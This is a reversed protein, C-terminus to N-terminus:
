PQKEEDLILHCRGDLCLQGDAKTVRTVLEIRGNEAPAEAVLTAILPEGVYAPAPFKLEQGGLRAGPYLTHILGRLASFLLMGHSVTAGFRTGAAYDPDVHIPNHDGSIRAFRDFDEQRLVFGKEMAAPGKLPYTDADQPTM